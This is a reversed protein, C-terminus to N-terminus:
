GGQQDTARKPFMGKYWGATEVLYHTRTDRRQRPSETAAGARTRRFGGQPAQPEPTPKTTIM